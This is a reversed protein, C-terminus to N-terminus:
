KNIPEFRGIAMMEQAKLLQTNIRDNQQKTKLMQKM